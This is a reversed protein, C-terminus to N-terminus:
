NWFALFILTWSMLGLLTGYVLGRAPALRDNEALVLVSADDLESLRDSREPFVQM